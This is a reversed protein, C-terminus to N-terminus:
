FCNSLLENLIPGYPVAIDIHSFVDPMTITIAINRSSIKNASAVSEALLQSYEKLNLNRLDETQYLLQHAMAMSKIRNQGDEMLKKIREDNAVSGQKILLSSVVQLNNKVRHHIEKLLLEKEKLSEDVLKKQIELEKKKSKM